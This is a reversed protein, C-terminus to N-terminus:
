QNYREHVQEAGIVDMIQSITSRPWEYLHLFRFLRVNPCNGSMKPIACLSANKTASININRADSIRHFSKQRVVMKNGSIGIMRDMWVDITLTGFLDNIFSDVCFIYDEPVLHASRQPNGGASLNGSTQFIVIHDHGWLV